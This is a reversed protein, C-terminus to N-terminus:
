TVTASLEPASVVDHGIDEDGEKGHRQTQDVRYDPREDGIDQDGSEEPDSRGGKTKEQVLPSLALTSLRGASAPGM